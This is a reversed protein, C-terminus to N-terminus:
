VSNTMQVCPNEQISISNLSSLGGLTCIENLDAIHNHDLTLTEISVPLYRDFQRLHTLRNGHLYLEQLADFYVFFNPSKQIFFSIFVTFLVLTNWALARCFWQIMPFCQWRVRNLTSATFKEQWRSDLCKMWLINSHIPLLYIFWGLCHGNLRACNNMIRNCTHTWNRQFHQTCSTDNFYYTNILEYDHVNM